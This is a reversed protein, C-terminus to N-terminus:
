RQGQRVRLAVISQQLGAVAREFECNYRPWNHAPDNEIMAVIERLELLAIEVGSDVRSYLCCGRGMATSPGHICIPIRERRANEMQVSHTRATEPTLHAEGWEIHGLGARYCVEIGPHFGDASRGVHRRTEHIGCDDPRWQSHWEPAIANQAASSHVTRAGNATQPSVDKELLWKLLKM